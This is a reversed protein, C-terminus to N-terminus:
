FELKKVVLEKRRSAVPIKIKGIILYGEPLYKDVYDLNVLYSQHPRVFNSESILDMAKKLPKSIMINKKDKLFFTTYNGESKCYLIDKENIIHYAELTKLVIRNNEKHNFFNKSVSVQEEIQPTETQLVKTVATRFEVADIPKLLYDIAGVRIAKIAHEDFGTIFIIKFKKLQIQELLKFSNADQLEIDLLLLDPKLNNILKTASKVSGAEGVVLIKNSFYTELFERINERIHLEDDIIVTKIM